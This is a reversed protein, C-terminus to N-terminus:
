YKDIVFTYNIMVKSWTSSIYHGQPRATAIINTENSLIENDNM